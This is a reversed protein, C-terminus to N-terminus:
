NFSQSILKLLQDTITGTIAKVLPADDKSEEPLRKVLEDAVDNFISDLDEKKIVKFKPDRRILNRRRLSKLEEKMERMEGKLTDKFGVDGQQSESM